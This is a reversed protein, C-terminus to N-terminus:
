IKSGTLKDTLDAVKEQAQHNAPYIELMQEWARLELEDNGSDSLIAALGAIAGFHRPELALVRNIDTMSKSHNGMMYHLTARRNWGEAFDPKLVIVQDLLDLALGNKQDSIAKDAWQLLLNTTASGSDRWRTWIRESIRKAQRADRTRKLQSFLSDLTDAPAESVSSQLPEPRTQAM